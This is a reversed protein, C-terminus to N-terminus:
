HSGPKSVIFAFAPTFIFTFTIVIGSILDRSGAARTVPKIEFDPIKNFTRASTAYISTIEGTTILCAFRQIFDM